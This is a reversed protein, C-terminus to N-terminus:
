SPTLYTCAMVFYRECKSRSSLPPPTSASSIPIPLDRDMRAKTMLVRSVARSQADDWECLSAGIASGFLHELAVKITTDEDHSGRYDEQTDSIRITDM